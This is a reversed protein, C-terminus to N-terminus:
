LEDRLRDLNMIYGQLDPHDPPLSHQAIDVANKYFLYAKSYEGIIDYLNGINNFSMALDPHDHPLSQRRIELAKEYSSFAKAHEDMAVYVNGINNYSTALDPHDHLLSEQQIEIAKKYYLLAQSCESITEYILGINIYCAALNPHNPPLIKEYIELGKRHSSLANSYEGMTTYVSGINTYSMALDPHDHPLSQRQIELAKKYSSFAKSCENINFYANGINNYCGGLYPHNPPFNKEYIKLAKEYFIIAEFHKGQNYKIWGLQGYIPGKENEENEEELMFEYILQAEEYQAMKILVLGLRYWGKFNPFTEERICDTLMQLDKENNNTLTLAVQFLRHNENMPTINGIRFVTHMSFLVEDEAEFQSIRNISAFPISSKFHDITMVFLIGILDPNNQCSEAFSLSVNRNKSTSLFNNFSMLGGKTKIMQDFDAKSMGQGRYVTFTENTNQDGFQQSHLQEIHRHLDVIFFGMKIIINVEMTRLARNLMSYLFSECTYWWIPIKDYYQREFKKINEIQFDNEVFQECCYKTFEKIHKEEFKITLFIEKLIQAYMFRPDLQDLNKKLVDDTTTLFSISITNQECQQAAQELAECILSIERFVGKVKSWRKIWQEYGTKNKCFIFIAYLQVIDHILPIINEYSPDSIIMCVKENYINTLFDICQDVDTFTNVTNVTHRLQSITNLSDVSDINNDLWVLFMNQVKQMKIQRSPVEDTSHISIQEAAIADGSRDPITSSKTTDM